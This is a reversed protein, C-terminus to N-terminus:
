FRLGIGFTFSVLMIADPKVVTSVDKGRHPGGQVEMNLGLSVEVRESRYGVKLGLESAVHVTSALFEGTSPTGGGLAFTAKVASYHVAGLGARGEAFLGDQGRLGGRIGVLASTIEWDRPSFFNGFDDSHADGEFLDHSIRLYGGSQWVLSPNVRSPHDWTLTAELCFGAGSSFLDEYSTGQIEVPVFFVFEIQSPVVEGSSPLSLRGEANLSFFPGGGLEQRRVTGPGVVDPPEQVAAAAVLLAAIWSM